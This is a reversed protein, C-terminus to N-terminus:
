PAVAVDVLFLPLAYVAKEEGGAEKISAAQTEEGEGDQVRVEKEVRLAQGLGPRGGAGLAVGIV